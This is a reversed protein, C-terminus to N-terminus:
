IKKYLDNIELLLLYLETPNQMDWSWVKFAYAFANSYRNEKPPLKKSKIIRILEEMDPLIVENINEIKCEDNEDSVELFYQLKANCMSICQEILELLLKTKKSM